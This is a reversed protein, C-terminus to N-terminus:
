REQRFCMRIHSCRISAPVFSSGLTTEFRACILPLSEERVFGLRRALKVGECDAVFENRGFMEHACEHAYIFGQVEAPEERFRPEDLNIFGPTWSALQPLFLFLRTRVDPCHFPRGGIEFAGPEFTQQARSPAPLAIAAVSLALLVLAKGTRLPASERERNPRPM